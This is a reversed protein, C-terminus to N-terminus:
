RGEETADQRYKVVCAHLWMALLVPSFVVYALAMFPACVCWYIVAGIARVGYRESWDARERCRHCM